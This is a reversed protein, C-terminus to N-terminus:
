KDHFDDLLIILDSAAQRIKFIHPHEPAIPHRQKSQFDGGSVATRFVTIGSNLEQSIKACLRALRRLHFLIEQAAADSGPAPRGYYDLSQQEIKCILEVAAEIRKSKREGVRKEKERWSVFAWGAITLASPALPLIYLYFWHPQIM